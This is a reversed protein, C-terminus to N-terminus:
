LDTEARYTCFLANRAREDGHIGKEEDDTQRKERGVKKDGRERLIENGRHQNVWGM